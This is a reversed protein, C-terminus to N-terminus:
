RNLRRINDRLTRAPRTHETTDIYRSAALYYEIARGTDALAEHALGLNNLLQPLLINASDPIMHRAKIYYAEASDAYGHSQFLYAAYFAMRTNLEAPNSDTTELAKRFEKLAWDPRTSQNYCYGIYAHILGASGAPAHKLKKRLIGLAGNWNREAIMPGVEALRTPTAATDLEVDGLMRTLSILDPDATALIPIPAVDMTSTSLIRALMFLVVIVVVGVTIWLFTGSIQFKSKSPRSKKHKAM